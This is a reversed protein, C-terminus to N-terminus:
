CQQLDENWDKHVPLLRKLDPNRDRASQGAQDNDVALVVSKLFLQNKIRDIAQQNYVGGISIYYAPVNIGRQRHLLYLSIADISSECIYAVEALRSTRFWWFCDASKKRVSHFTKYSLSGHIEAFDHEKNIFIINNHDASQYVIGQDILMQITDSPIKRSMLYAFLQSYSGEKPKPIDFPHDSDFVETKKGVFGDDNDPILSTACLAGVAESLDFDMYRVLFDVSNGKEGTAFDLYGSFGKKISISRNTRLRLSNGERIFKNGYYRYLYEYLDAKRAAKMQQNTFQM